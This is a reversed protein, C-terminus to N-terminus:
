HTVAKNQETIILNFITNQDNSSLKTLEIREPLEKKKIDDGPIAMATSPAAM